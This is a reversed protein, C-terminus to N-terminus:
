EEFIHTFQYGHIRLHRTIEIVQNLESAKYTRTAPTGDKFKFKIIHM